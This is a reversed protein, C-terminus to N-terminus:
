QRSLAGHYTKIDVIADEGLTRNLKECLSSKQLFIENAWLPSTVRVKLVREHYTEPFIVAGGRQGYEEKIIKLFLFFVTKKDIVQAALSVASKAEAKTTLFQKLSRM